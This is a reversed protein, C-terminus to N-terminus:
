NIVVSQQLCSGKLNASFKDNAKYEARSSGGNFGSEANKFTIELAGGVNGPLVLDEAQRQFSFEDTWITFSNILAGDEGFAEGEISPPDAVTDSGLPLDQMFTIETGGSFGGGVLFRSRTMYCFGNADVDIPTGGAAFDQSTNVQFFDVSIPQNSQIRAWGRIFGDADPAATANGNLNIAIMQRPALTPLMVPDQILLSDVPHLDLTPTDDAQGENRISLFTTEGFPNTSDIKFHGLIYFTSPMEGKAGGQPRSASPQSPDISTARHPRALESLPGNHLQIIVEASAATTLTLALLSGLALAQTTKM